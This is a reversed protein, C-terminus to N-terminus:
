LDVLWNIKSGLHMPYTVNWVGCWVYMCFALDCYSFFPLNSIRCLPYTLPIYLQASFSHSRSRICPYPIFSCHLTPSVPPQNFILNDFLSLACLMIRAFGFAFKRSVFFPHGMTQKYGGPCASHGMERTPGGRDVKILTIHSMSFHSQFYFVFFLM